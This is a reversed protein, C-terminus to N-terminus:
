GETIPPSTGQSGAVEPEGSAMARLVARGFNPKTCIARTFVRFLAGARSVPSSGKVPSKALKRELFGAERERAACLIDEKSRFSKYRTGLAVGAQEAVDRQRVNDYGGAEALAIAVDLIRDRRAIQTTTISSEVALSGNAKAM